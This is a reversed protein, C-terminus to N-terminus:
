AAAAALGDPLLNVHQCDFRTAQALRIAPAVDDVPQVHVDSAAIDVAEDASVACSFRGRHLHDAPHDTGRRALHTQEVAECGTGRPLAECFAGRLSATRMPVSTSFGPSYGLMVASSFMRQLAIASPRTSLTASISCSSHM